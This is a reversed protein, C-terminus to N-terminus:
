VYWIVFAGDLLTKVVVEVIHVHFPVLLVAASNFSMLAVQELLQWVNQHYVEFSKNVGVSKYLLLFM